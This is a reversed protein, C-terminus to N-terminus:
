RKRGRRPPTRRRPRRSGRGRAPKAARPKEEDGSAPATQGALRALLERLDAAARAETESARRGYRSLVFTANDYVAAWMAASQVRAHTANFQSTLNELNKALAREGLSEYMDLEIQGVVSWFDPTAEKM